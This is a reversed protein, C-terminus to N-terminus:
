TLIALENELMASLFEEVEACANEPVVECEAALIALLDKATRTGDLSKWLLVGVPNIGFATGKGPDYLLAWNDFEERCVISPNSKLKSSVNTPM